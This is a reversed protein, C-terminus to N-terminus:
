PENRFIFGAMRKDKEERQAKPPRPRPWLRRAPPRPRAPPSLTLSLFAAAAAAALAPFFDRQLPIGAKRNFGPRGGERGRGDWM